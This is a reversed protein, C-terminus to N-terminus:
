EELRVKQGKFDISVVSMDCRICWIQLGKETWGVELNSWQKPSLNDPKKELCGRCHMFSKIQNLKPGTM